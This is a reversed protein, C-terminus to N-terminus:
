WGGLYRELDPRPGVTRVGTVDVRVADFLDDRNWRTSRAEARTSVVRAVDTEGDHLTARGWGNRELREVADRLAEGLLVPQLLEVRIRVRDTRSWDETWPASGPLAAVAADLSMFRQAASCPPPPPVVMVDIKETPLGHPRSGPVPVLHALRLAEKEKTEDSIGRASADPGDHWAVASPVHAFLAGRLWARYAWEWDEGGYATFSEDFGGVESFFERSCALLAGIMFRYSRDDAELLNGSAAYADALWRPEPLRRAQSVAADMPMGTFDAHGRRGVAVCDPALSPLRTLEAIFAPEPTTDADLFVLIEGTALSAGLNRVAALRFGDDAQRVLSVGAPIRPHEPSGDDAVIIQMREAPYTQTQLARLTRALQAPQRYHPVVVTVSPPHQPVAGDLLDWRNGPVARGRV